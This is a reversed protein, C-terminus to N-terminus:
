SRRGGPVMMPQLRKSRVLWILLPAGVAVLMSGVPMEFPQMIWRGLIDMALLLASGLGFAMLLLGQTSERVLMRALFPALLGLFAIPGTLAVASGALLAIVFSLALRTRNPHHGIATASADGLQLAALPRVLLLAVVIGIITFPLVALVRDLEIGALSGLIWFRFQDFVTQKTLLLMATLGQGTANVAIGVLVLRLPSIPAQVRHSAFVIVMNGALAGILAGVMYPFGAEAAFFVIAAVVGLAAGANIGLLGPEAIPNRTIRQMLAGALGLSGGALIAALTRPWRITEMVVSVTAPLQEAPQVSAPAIVLSRLFSLSDQLSIYGAGVLMSAVILVGNMLFVLLLRNVWSSHDRSSLGLLQKFVLFCRWFASRQTMLSRDVTKETSM